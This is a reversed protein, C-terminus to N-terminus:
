ESELERREEETIPANIDLLGLPLRMEVRKGTFDM